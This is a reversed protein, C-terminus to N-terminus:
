RGLAGTSFLAGASSADSPAAAHAFDSLLVGIRVNDARDRHPLPTGGGASFLLIEFIKSNM